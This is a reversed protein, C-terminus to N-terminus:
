HTGQREAAMLLHRLIMAQNRPYSRRDSLIGYDGLSYDFGGDRHQLSLLRSYGRAALSWYDGLQMASARALAASVASGFYRVTPRDEGCHHRADGDATLGGSVFEALKSMVPVVREDASVEYYDALDLLQFANYQFCLYHVRGPGQESGIVYPLEGSELQCKALFSAMAPCHELYATDGAARALVACFWMALTSNNPVMGRGLNSFYNVARSEADYDQFGVQEVMFRYWRRACDLLREDGSAEFGFLACLAGFCGEVTAIRNSWEAQPYKWWGEPMQRKAVLEACRLAADKYSADGTLAAMKLNDLTWYAQGQLYYLSDRWPLARLYSKVFRTVRLNLSAGPDPGVMAGDERIHHALLHAYLREAALRCAPSDIETTSLNATTM